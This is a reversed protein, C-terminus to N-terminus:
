LGVCLLYGSRRAPVNVILEELYPLSISFLDTSGLCGRDVKLVGEVPYLYIYQYTYLYRNLNWYLVPYLYKERYQYPSKM